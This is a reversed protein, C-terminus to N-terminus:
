APEVIASSRNKLLIREVQHLWPTPLAEPLDESTLGEVSEQGPAPRELTMESGQLELWYPMESGTEARARQARDRYFPVGRLGARLRYAAQLRWMAVLKDEEVTFNAFYWNKRRLCDPCRLVLSGPPNGLLEKNWGLTVM